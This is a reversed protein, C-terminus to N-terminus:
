VIVRQNEVSRDDYLKVYHRERIWDAWYQPNANFAQALDGASIGEDTQQIYIEYHRQPNARARMKMQGVISPLPNVKVKSGMMIQFLEDKNWNEPHYNTIDQLSELGTCDWMVLFYKM